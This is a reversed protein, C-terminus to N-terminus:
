DTDAGNMVFFVFGKQGESHYILIGETKLVIDRLMLYM